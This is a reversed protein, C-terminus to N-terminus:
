SGLEDFIKQTLLDDGRSFSRGSIWRSPSSLRPRKKKSKKRRKEEEKKKKEEM